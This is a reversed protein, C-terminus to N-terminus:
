KEIMEVFAEARIALQGANAMQEEREVQLMPVGIAKLDPELYYSEGGWCECNQMKEYIIGQIDYAKCTDVIEKHIAPRNDLARPCTNRTLYYDAISGLVDKDDIVLKEGFSRAGFCLADAVVLGGKDEIVRIYEPNDLASGIMMLRARAKIPGRGKADAIFEGLAAIYEDITLDCNALMIRLAETGSVKAEKRLTFLQAILGRVENTKAAASKLGEDTVAKGSFAGLKDALTQLEAKYYGISIENTIRPAGIQHIFQAKGNKKAIHSWNDLIRTAMMCGDSQVLGDLDYTGNMLYQLVSKAFSCSFSSMWAEADSSDVCNTARLRVPMVDAAILIETPVHCCVYGVAKKGSAKWAKASEGSINTELLKEYSM